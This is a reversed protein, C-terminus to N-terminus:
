SFTPFSNWEKWGWVGHREVGAREVLEVLKPSLLIYDLKGSATANGHTGERGDSEFEDLVMVNTLNSGNGILPLLSDSDPTDNLDGM